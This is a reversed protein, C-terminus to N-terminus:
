AAASRQDVEHTLIDKGHYSLLTQIGGSLHASDFGAADLIRHALYSRIGSACHVRVPRGAAHARVEDLRERLEIHPIHLAGQLHGADWEDQRRVDLILAEDRVTDLDAAQWLRVVGDIVNQSVFGVMTIPDKASGFPPAYALDIDALDTVALGARVATALVDIRKDVGKAGVGQAGYIRGPETADAPAFHVVLHIPTAGPFYGAHDGAHLHITEFPIGAAELETRNAGTMAASLDFVRVISTGLPAPQPRAPVGTAAGLIADAILRGDRNAPGALAVPRIVGTAPDQRAVADGTAWVHPASTRGLGDVVIAGDATDVGADQVFATDPRAGAAVVIVDATARTGDSIEVDAGDPGDVIATVRSGAHVHVGGEVLAATVHSALERELRALPHRASQVLHVDLGRMRLAEAAEVGIYGGGIVVARTGIAAADRLSLADEVTRLTQVRPSDIGAVQPLVAAAGPALVLEDYALVHDGLLTRATVTRAEPDIAVVEHHTRVDLALAAKLSQPTQVLLSQEDEIEGSVAYPLGCNAFSVHAGRELVIIHAHEDLRRARAAFSMGGAVGGVVVIRRPAAATSDTADPSPM